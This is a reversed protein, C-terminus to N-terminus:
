FKYQAQVGILYSLQDYNYTGNVTVGSHTNNISSKTVFLHTYGVDIQWDEHPIATLGFSLLYRDNDPIRATRHEADKIPTMDYAFGTRLTVAPHLFWDVGIHASVTDRWDQHIPDMGSNTVELTDFISWQIYRLTASLGVPAKFKHYFSLTVVNPLYMDATGESNQNFGAYLGRSLMGLATDENMNPLMNSSKDIHGKLSHKVESRYAVGIRTTDGGDTEGFDYMIGVSGGVAWSDGYIRAYINKVDGLITQPDKVGNKLAALAAPVNQTLTASGYQVNVTAGITLGRWVNFSMSPAIEIVQLQSKIASSNVISTEAYETGLGFPVYVGLGFKIRDNLAYAAFFNPVVEQIEVRAKGANQEFPNSVTGSFEGNLTVVTAGVQVGFTRDFIQLGAPNSAIASLDDGVVGIGAFARGLSTVSYENLLYGSAYSSTSFLVASVTLFVAILFNYFKKM